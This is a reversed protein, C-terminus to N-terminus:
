RTACHQEIVHSATINRVDVEQSRSHGRIRAIPYIEVRIQASVHLKRVNLEVINLDAAESPDANHEAAPIAGAPKIVDPDRACLDMLYFSATDHGVSIAEKM